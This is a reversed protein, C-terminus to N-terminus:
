KRPKEINKHNDNGYTRENEQFKPQQHSPADIIEISYM